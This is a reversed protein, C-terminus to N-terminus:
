TKRYNLLLYISMLKICILMEINQDLYAIELRLQMKIEYFYSKIQFLRIDSGLDDFTYM